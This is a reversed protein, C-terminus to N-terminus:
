LGCNLTFYHWYNTNAVKICMLYVFCSFTKFVRIRTESEELKAIHERETRQRSELERCKEELM